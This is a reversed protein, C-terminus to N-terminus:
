CLRILSLTMSVEVLMSDGPNLLSYVVRSWGDTNGTHVLITFDSFGPKYFRGSYEKLFAQLSPLGTAMGTELNTCLGYRRPSYPGYQLATALNVENIPDSVYKPVSIKDTRQKSQSSFLNWLWSLPTSTTELGPTADYTDIPLTTADM